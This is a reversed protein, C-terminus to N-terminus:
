REPYKDILTQAVKNAQLVGNQTGGLLCLRVKKNKESFSARIVRNLRNVRM